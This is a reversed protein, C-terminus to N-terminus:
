TDSFPRLGDLRLEGRAILPRIDHVSQEVRWRFAYETSPFALRRVLQGLFIGSGFKEILHRL